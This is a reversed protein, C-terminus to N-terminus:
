AAVNQKVWKTLKDIQDSLRMKRPLSDHLKQFEKLSNSDLPMKRKLDPHEVLLDYVDGRHQEGEHGVPVFLGVVCRKETGPVAYLCTGKENDAGERAVGKYTKRIHALIKRKTWGNIPKM